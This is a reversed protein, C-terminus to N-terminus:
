RVKKWRTGQASDEISIGRGELEVRIADAQAFEKKARAAKRAQLREEVWQALEPDPGVADPIVDLVSNIRAFVERARALAKRDLGNRDLEANARRIFTFL